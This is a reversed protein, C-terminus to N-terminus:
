SQAESKHDDLDDYLSWLKEWDPPGYEEAEENWPGQYPNDGLSTQYIAFGPHDHGSKLLSAIHPWHNVRDPAPFDTVFLQIDKAARAYDKRPIYVMDFTMGLVARQHEPVKANDWLKWVREIGAMWHVTPFYKQCLQDWVFAASGHSNKLDDLAEIKEGPYVALITSYSM